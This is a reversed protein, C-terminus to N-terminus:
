LEVHRTEKPTFGVVQSPVVQYANETGGVEVQPADSATLSHTAHLRLFDKFSEISRNGSYKIVRNDNARVLLITPYGSVNLDDDNSPVDNVTADMKAIVLNSNLKMAAGLEEYAPALRRCHICWPAHFLLLVDKTKDFVVENFQKSVLVFVSGDNSEPIPESKYYPAIRGEAFSGVFRRVEAESVPKSQSFPYKTHQIVDQIAFAPWQPKLSLMMAHKSYIRADVLTLSVARKFDRAVGVLRTELEKRMEDSNYFILGIPIGARIYNGFTQSSLEGMVPVSTARVFRLVNEVTLQGTFIDAEAGGKYVAIGPAPVGQQKALSKDDIFGFKYEDRLQRAVEELVAFEASKHAFFGVAVVDASGKFAGFSAAAVKPLPPQKHRRMYDIIGSEERSGNYKVYDGDVVVKLTPYGAVDMEECLKQEKTCDVEALPINEKMLVAAASEYSPAMAQCYGCWPAFFKVLALEQADSWADFGKDTLVHVAPKKANVAAASLWVATVVNWAIRM